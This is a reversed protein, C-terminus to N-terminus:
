PRRPFVGHRGQNFSRRLDFIRDPSGSNAVECGEAAGAADAATATRPRTVRRRGVHIPARAKGPGTALVLGADVGATPETAVVVPALAAEGGQLVVGDAVGRARSATAELALEMTLGVPFARRAVSPLVAVPPRGSPGVVAEETAAALGPIATIAALGVM